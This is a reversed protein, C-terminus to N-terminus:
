APRLISLDGVAFGHGSLHALADLEQRLTSPDQQRAWFVPGGEWRPFGYGHALVVDIDGARLAVGQALLLAAENAMALLARRQITEPPLTQRAIGRRASADTILARVTADTAPSQRGEAYTYYGAGSKRGLRGQECLRDLIDVYRERPDRTAAQAKRMRWAIDLGSLDAVAFPGMAMGFAQMARDVDEPWAGEELMFECQRRYANYIRNGIFGFANGCLVPLKGLRRGLQLGTALVAGPRAHQDIQCFVEQKVALDEFVAEVVVDAQAVDPWHCTGTLRAQAAAAQDAPLKGAEVRGQYHSAIRQLGADLAAASQELLVVNLGAGLAAIAIGTGMTGAGIVALTHLPRPTASPPWHAPPRTAEREAFFLHRLALAQPSLRLTEFAKRERALAEDFPLRASDQLAALAAVVAPQHKGARLAAQEAAAIAGADEAPVAEDRIRQKRGQLSRAHAVAQACLDTEKEVVADVLRLALAQAAPFREGRGVLPIARLLGTRRPLRQTGGAGPIIGLTVEPLGLMTGAQAIRADCGLALELGGGLAAGHLAAVVPKSCQEIATIVAPLQPAQLPQGFERLDSGAVFTSGAGILVAAEIDPDAELVQLAAILGQRVAASTANVPPNHIEIVLVGETRRTHVATNDNAANM